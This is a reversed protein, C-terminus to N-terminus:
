FFIRYAVRCSKLKNRYQLEVAYSNEKSVCGYLFILITLLLSIRIQCVRTQMAALPPIACVMVLRSIATPQSPQQATNDDFRTAVVTALIKDGMSEDVSVGWVIEADVHAAERIAESAETMEAMNLRSEVGKFNIIVSRAGQVSVELLPSGVAAKVAELCANDGTGEGIGMLAPGADSMITEVDAFDVNIFGSENILDAISQVGQRLIDDVAHFAETFPTNRDIINLLKENPITIISDVHESLKAVGEKARRSRMLGEFGFPKTVVAVTLAGIERACEAVVPAAGTGTGGGMGAAIFVMDAGELAAKIEDRNEEAAKAGVEPRAGAGKGETAKRGIQLRVPALSKELVEADTNIVIFEVGQIGSSVMCNVANNGGGGVGVVKIVTNLDDVNFEAFDIGM